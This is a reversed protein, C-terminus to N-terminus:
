RVRLSLSDTVRFNESDMGFSCRRPKTRDEESNCELCLSRFWLKSDNARRGKVLKGNAADSRKHEPGRIVTRSEVLTGSWETMEAAVFKGGRNM